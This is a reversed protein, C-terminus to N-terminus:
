LYHNQDQYYHYTKKNVKPKLKPAHNINTSKTKTQM